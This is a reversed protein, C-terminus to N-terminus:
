LQAWVEEQYKSATFWKNKHWIELYFSDTEIDDRVQKVLEGMSMTPYEKETPFKGPKNIKVKM